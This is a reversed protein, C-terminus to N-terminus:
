EELSGRATTSGWIREVLPLMLARPMHQGFISQAQNLAGPVVVRKDQEAGQVAERAIDEASMWFLDPTEDEVGAMGAADTFETKVPGPCVATVSVGTGRQETRIAESFSLVFSKSAAYTASGPIPQFAAVSAVNIVAGRGREVMGPLFRSTLDVVAEVNVRVMELMRGRDNAIFDGRSGFGANNVLIEVSRGTGALLNALREREAEDSLDCAVAAADADYEATLETALSRLREERRAVLTVAHGRSVLERAIAAGIGSSAGTVLAAGSPSPDPLAM